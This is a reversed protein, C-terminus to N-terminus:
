VLAVVAVGVPQPGKPTLKSADSLLAKAEYVEACGLPGDDPSQADNVDAWLMEPNPEQPLVPVPLQCVFPGPKPM